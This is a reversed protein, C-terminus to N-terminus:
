VNINSPKSVLKQYAETLIKRSKYDSSPIKMAICLEKALFKDDFCLLAGHIGSEHLNSSYERLGLNVAWRQLKQNSWVMLYAPGGPGNEDLGITQNVQNRRRDLEKKSYNLHKLCLIGSTISRRHLNDHMGLNNRFNKKTLHELMRSDVLNEMFAQQYQPLGLSPLWEYGVWQHNMSGHALNLARQSVSIAKLEEHTLWLQSSSNKSVSPQGAQATLKIMDDIALKLKLRHLANTIGIEVQIENDSLSAMIAGSKVNNKCAAVYWQPMGVWLELWAVLTAGSWYEFSINKNQVESLLDQKKKLRRQAEKSLVPNLSSGTGANGSTSQSQHGNQDNQYYAASSLATVNTINNSNSSSEAM